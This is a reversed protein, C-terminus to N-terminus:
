IVTNHKLNFHCLNQPSWVLEFHPTYCLAADSKWIKKENNGECIKTEERDEM